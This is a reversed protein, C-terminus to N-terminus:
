PFTFIKLLVLLRFDCLLKNGTKLKLDHNYGKPVGHSVKKHLKESLRSKREMESEKINGNVCSLERHQIEYITSTLFVKIAIYM